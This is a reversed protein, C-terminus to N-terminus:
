EGQTQWVYTVLNDLKATFEEITGDEQLEDVKVIRTSSKVCHNNTLVLKKAVSIVTGSCGRGVQVNTQDVTRNMEEISWRPAPEAHAVGAIALAALGVLFRMM